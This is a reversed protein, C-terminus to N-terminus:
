WPIGPGYFWAENLYTNMMRGADNGLEEKSKQMVDLVKEIYKIAGPVNGHRYVLYSCPKMCLFIDIGLM